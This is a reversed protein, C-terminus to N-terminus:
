KTLYSAMETKNDKTPAEVVKPTVIDILEQINKCTDNLNGKIKQISGIININNTEIVNEDALFKDCNEIAGQITKCLSDFKSAINKTEAEVIVFKSFDM